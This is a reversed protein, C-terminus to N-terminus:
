SFYIFTQSPSLNLFILMGSAHQLLIIVRDQLLIVFKLNITFLDFLFGSNSHHQRFLAKSLHLYIPFPNNSVINFFRQALCSECLIPAILSHIFIHKVVFTNYM